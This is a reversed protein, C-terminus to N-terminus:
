VNWRYFEVGQHDANKSQRKEKTNESLLTESELVSITLRM